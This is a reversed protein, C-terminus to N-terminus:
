NADRAARKERVYSYNGPYLATKGEDLVLTSMSLRDLLYRDHSVLLITGQYGEFAAEIRERTAIDLHNTPEDLVLLNAGSAVLKALAVRVREGESLDGIRELADAGRFLLSALLTRVDTQPAGTGSLVEELVTRTVDLNEHEQALYGPVVNAGLLVRLLTTKGAGNRGIIALRDGRRVFLDLDAFLTKPEYRKSIREAVIVDQGSRHATGFDAYAAPDERPREITEMHELRKRGAKARRAVKKAIRGHFDRGRKPGGQISAALQLQREIFERISQIERQQERYADAQRRLALEKQRVFVSYDGTYSTLTGDAVEVVRTVTADLFRRDHSAIISSGRFASLWDELWELMGIDLHNTPEDLLLVDPETMLLKALSLRTKEGGSLSMVSQDWQAREIGLGNLIREAHWWRADDIPLSAIEDRVTRDVDIRTAQPLYGVRLSPPSRRVSGSDPVLIGAMISLLTTKGCGNRGVLGVRESPGLRFTVNSLVDRAGFAKSVRNVELFMAAERIIATFSRADV